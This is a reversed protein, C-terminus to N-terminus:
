SGDGETQQARRARYARVRERTAARHAKAYASRMARNHQKRHWYCRLAQPTALLIGCEVCRSPEQRDRLARYARRARVNAATWAVVACASVRTPETYPNM